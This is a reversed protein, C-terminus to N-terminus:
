AVLHATDNMSILRPDGERPIALVTLSAPSVVLRQFLDLPVGAYHAVLVKIIDAHSVVIVNQRDTYRDVLEEVADVARQQAARFSEGGPFTFRSPTRQVWRWANTRRVQKLTRDTWRGYDFEAVGHLEDVDLGLAGGIPDATELTRVVPSSHVGAFTTGSGALRDAVAAAQARGHDSLPAPTRGGLRTGTADTVGHRVLVVTAM